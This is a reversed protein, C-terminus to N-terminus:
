KRLEAEACILFLGLLIIFVPLLLNKFTDMVLNIFGMISLLIGIVTARFRQFILRFVIKVM